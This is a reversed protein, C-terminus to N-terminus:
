WKQPETPIWTRSRNVSWLRRAPHIFAHMCTMTGHGMYVSRGGLEIWDLQTCTGALGFGLVGSFAIGIGGREMDICPITFVCRM